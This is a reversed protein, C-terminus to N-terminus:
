LTLSGNQVSNIIFHKSLFETTKQIIYGCLIMNIITIVGVTGGLIWGLLLFATDLISRLYKLQWKNKKCLAFCIGEYPGRGLDAFAYIGIGIGLFLIGSIIYVTIILFNQPQQIISNFFDTCWGFLLFHIITGVKIQIRDYFFSFCLMIISTIYSAEGITINLNLSMGEWLVGLIVNGLNLKILITMGLSAIITGGILLIWKRLNFM